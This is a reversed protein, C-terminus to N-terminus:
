KEKQAWVAAILVVAKLILSYEPQINNMNVIVTVLQVLVAGFVTGLIRARGGAFCTGGIAVAAIADLEIYMGMSGADVRGGRAAEMAGAIACLVACLVYVGVTVSFVNIGVLRAARRNDGIAEVRRAFVTKKVIFLMVAITPIMILVQIPIGAMRLRGFTEFPTGMLSVPFEGLIMQAVGRGAFMVILTVIIPQIRFKSILVGNLLGCLGGALVGCGVSPIVGIDATYCRAIVAAAVAMIAGVSIDIGGSSIVMTMGLAVLMIPFVQRLTNDLTGTSLFNPTFIANLVIMALFFFIMSYNKIFQVCGAVHAFGASTPLAATKESSAM